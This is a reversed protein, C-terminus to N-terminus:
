FRRTDFFSYTTFYDCVLRRATAGVTKVIRLKPGVLAATLNTSHTAVLTGGIYFKVSGSYYGVSLTQYTGATPAVATVTKTTTSSSTTKCAWFNGDTARDYSFFIGDSMATADVQDGFGVNVIYEQAGTSLATVYVRADFFMSQAGFTYANGYYLTAYGPGPDSQELYVQGVAGTPGDFLLGDSGGTNATDAWTTTGHVNNNAWDESIMFGSAPDIPQCPFWRSSNYVFMARLTTDYCLQGDTPSLALRQTLTKRQPYKTQDITPDPYTGTLDGGAAGSPSVSGTNGGLDVSGSAM